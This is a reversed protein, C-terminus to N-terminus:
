NFSWIGVLGEAIFLPVSTEQTTDLLSIMAESNATMESYVLHRSDPSWLRHSQAFQDFYTLVYLMQETPVFSGYSRVAGSEVDLVSWSLGGTGQRASSMKASFSGPSVATTTVYAIQDSDPSWFFALM